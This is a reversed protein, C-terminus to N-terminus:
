ILDWRIPAAANRDQRAPSWRWGIDKQIAEPLDAILSATRRQARAEVHATAYATLARLM